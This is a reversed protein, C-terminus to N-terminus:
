VHAVEDWAGYQVHKPLRKVIAHFTVVCWAVKWVYTDDEMNWKHAIDETADRSRLYTYARDPHSGANENYVYWMRLRNPDVHYTDQKRATNKM